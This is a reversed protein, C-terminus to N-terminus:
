PVRLPFPRAPTKAPRIPYDLALSYYTDNEDFIFFVYRFSVVFHMCSPMM